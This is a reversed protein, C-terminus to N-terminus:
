NISRITELLRDLGYPGIACNIQYLILRVNGKTYGLAPVIRDVSPADFRPEGKIESFTLNFPLRTIACCGDQEQWLWILYEPSIDFPIDKTIARNRAGQYLNKCRAIPNNKKNIWMQKQNGKSQCQLCCYKKHSHKTDFQSSCEPCVRKM